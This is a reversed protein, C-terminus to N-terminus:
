SKSSTTVKSLIAETNNIKQSRKCLLSSQKVKETDLVKQGSACISHMKKRLPLQKVKKVDIIKWSSTHNLYM